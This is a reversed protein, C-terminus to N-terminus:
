AREERRPIKTFDMVAGGRPLRALDQRRKSTTFHGDIATSVRGAAATM